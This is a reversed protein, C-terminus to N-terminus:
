QHAPGRASPDQQQRSIRPRVSPEKPIPEVTARCAAAGMSLLITRGRWPRWDAPVFSIDRKVVGALARSSRRQAAAPSTSRLPRSRESPCCPGSTCRSSSISAAGALAGRVDPRRGLRDEPICDGRPDLRSRAVHGGHPRPWPSVATPRRATAFAADLLFGFKKQQEEPGIGLITFVRQQVDSRHIRVSGSGLEWGNLVLDYARSSLDAPEGSLSWDEPATFPHHAAFWRNAQEDWELLPFHTVWLFRWQGAPALALKKGLQVRLEGLSRQVVRATDAVFVCLDGDSAGM